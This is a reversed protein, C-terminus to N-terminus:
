ETAEAESSPKRIKSMIFKAIFPFIALLIFSGIIKPQAIDSISSIDGIQTGANVYVATGALMGLQSSWYFTITKLKTLAMVINVVFFPFAPILRASFCYLWGEKEVGANIKELQSGFKSEMSERLVYRAMLFALTAGISSSFSVLFLGTWFGFVAGAGLTLITAAPLSLAAFAVYILFFGGGILLPNENYLDIFGGRKEQLYELNLVENLDFYFFAAILSAVIGILILKKAM